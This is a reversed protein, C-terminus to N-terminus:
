LMPPANEVPAGCGEERVCAVAQREKRREGRDRRERGEVEGACPAKKRPPMTKKEGELPTEGLSTGESSRTRGDKRGETCEVKAEKWTASGEKSM